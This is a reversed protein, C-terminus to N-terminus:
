SGCTHTQLWTDLPAGNSMPTLLNSSSSSLSSFILWLGGVVEAEMDWRPTRWTTTSEAESRGRLDQALDEKQSSRILIRLFLIGSQGFYCCSWWDCWMERTRKLAITISLVNSETEMEEDGLNQQIGRILMKDRWVMLSSEDLYCIVTRWGTLDSPEGRIQHKLLM